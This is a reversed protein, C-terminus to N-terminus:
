SIAKAKGHVPLPRRPKLPKTRRTEDETAVEARGRPRQFVALTETKMFTMPMVRSNEIIIISFHHPVKLLYFCLQAMLISSHFRFHKAINPDM